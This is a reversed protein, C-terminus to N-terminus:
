KRISRNALYKTQHLYDKTKIYRSKFYSSRVSMNHEPSVTMIHCCFACFTFVESTNNCSPNYARYFTDCFWCKDINNILIVSSNKIGSLDLTEGKIHTLVIM